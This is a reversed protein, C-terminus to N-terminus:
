ARAHRLLVATGLGGASAIAALGQAGEAERRLEHFLRVALIAGSAGIPHGRALAGGSRNVGPRDLELGEVCAIAQVAYAEMVEAVRLARLDTATARALKSAAAVPALGPRTPDGGACAAGDFRCFAASPNKRLFRQSVLCVVAAADASVAATAAHLAHGGSQALPRSRRCTAISLKRMYADRAVGPFAVLEGSFRGAREAALAKEHSEVTWAAQRAEDIGAECALAAAAEAMEPDRDAWPTFPPRAYPGPSVTGQSDVAHREPARSYSEVGGALVCDAAGSEILRAGLVIADLGSCCQRDITLAPTEQSLGALLTVRRAPNGGGCLGNGFIVEDVGSAPVGADALAAQLVPAALQDVDLAALAGGRPAVPSRRASVLWVPRSM